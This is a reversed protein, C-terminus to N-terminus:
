SATQFGNRRPRASTTKSSTSCRPPTDWDTGYVSEILAIHDHSAGNRIEDLYHAFEDRTNASFIRTGYDLEAALPQESLLAAIENDVYMADCYPMLAAVTTVDTITGRSPPRRQGARAKRAIAAFLWTSIRLYPIQVLSESQFYEATKDWLEQEAVGAQRMISHINEILQAASSPFLADLDVPPQQLAEARQQVDRVYMSVVGNGFGLLERRAQQEITLEDQQWSAFIRTM